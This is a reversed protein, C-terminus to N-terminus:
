CVGDIPILYLLTVVGSKQANWRIAGRDSGTAGDTRRDMLEAHGPKVGDIVVRVATSDGEAVRLLRDNAVGVPTELGSTPIFFGVYPGSDDWNAVEANSFPKGCSNVPDPSGGAGGNWIQATLESLQGANAGVAKRFGSSPSTLGDRIEALLLEASEVKKEDLHAALPVSIAALSAVIAVTITVEM